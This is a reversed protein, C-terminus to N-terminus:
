VLSNEPRPWASMLADVGTAAYVMPPRRGRPRAALAAELAAMARRDIERAPRNARLVWLIVDAQLAEALTAAQAAESGDLGPLDILVCEVQDLVLPHATPRHTTAIVDTEAAEAGVLANVLTSKGASVQGAVLIRIPADEDAARAEDQRTWDRRYDLLEAESFRLRGSYLDVAAEAVEELLLSQVVSWAERTLYGQHGSALWGEIERLIALPAGKVFRAVRWAAHTWGVGRRAWAGRDYLWKLTGVSVQDSFPVMDRLDARFRATVQEVLLLAEPITFDLESKGESHKAVLAVVERALDPLTGWEVPTATREAIMAKATAFTAQEAASWDPRDAVSLRPTEALVDPARRAQRRRWWGIGMRVLHVAAAFGMSVGVFKLLWGREGLWIIGLVMTVGLPVVLALLSLLRDIRLFAGFLRNRDLM